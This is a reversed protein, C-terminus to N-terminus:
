KYVGINWVTDKPKDKPKVNDWSEQEFHRDRGLFVCTQKVYETGTKGTADCWDRYRAMGSAMADETVGEDMRARWARWAALKSDAGSRRARAVWSDEFVPSYTDARRAGNARHAKVTKEQEQEQEQYGYLPTSTMHKDHAQVTNSSHECQNTVTDVGHQCPAPITSPREKVNPIQHKCFNVIQIYALEENTYRLIFGASQLDDLGTDVSYDDYPLVEAKIRKPRDELRGCRDAHCWLGAFLIRTLAPLEALRDNTFFGPKISRIRAM